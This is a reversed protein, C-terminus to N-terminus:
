TIVFVVCHLPLAFYWPFGRTAFFAASVVVTVWSSLALILVGCLLWRVMAQAPGGLSTSSAIQMYHRVFRVEFWGLLTYVGAYAITALLVLALLHFM